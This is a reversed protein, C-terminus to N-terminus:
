YTCYGEYLKNGEDITYYINKVVHYSNNCYIASMEEIENEKIDDQSMNSLNDECNPCIFYDVEERNYTHDDCEFDLEAGCKPCDM